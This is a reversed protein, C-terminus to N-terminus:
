KKSPKKLLQSQILPQKVEEIPEADVQAIPERLRKDFSWGMVSVCEKADTFEKQHPTNDLDYVTVLAM